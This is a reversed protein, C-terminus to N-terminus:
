SIKAFKGKGVQIVMGKRVAVEKKWDNFIKGDIKVGNQVVLRKAESKSPVLGTRSLLELINLEPEKIKISPMESPLNGEMFVSSFEKKTKEAEKKSYILSIISDALAEKAKIPNLKNLESVSLDACAEAVPGILSDDIMMIQKRTEKPDESLSVANGESKGMKNGQADVLLKLALIFKEKNKLAKMLDRGCFMNFIQDNGGIELDVDMVTSDYAQALPYLFEHLFIPKKEKIREQFMDRIIMQQVTFNSALDILDAFSVKDLWKSNYLVKAPNPGKFNLIKGAIDKYRLSNKLVEKRSLKKRASKKGTPDGIMGTFDGILIIVEHGLAQFEALKKFSALHGIHLFPSSPDYGCYLRIKKGSLLKKKLLDPSPYVAEVNKKLVRDIKQPNVDVM